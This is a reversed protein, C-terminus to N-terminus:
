ANPQFLLYFVFFQKEALVIFCEYRRSYLKSGSKIESSHM